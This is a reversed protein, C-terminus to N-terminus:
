TAEKPTMTWRKAAQPSGARARTLPILGDEFHINGPHFISHNGILYM